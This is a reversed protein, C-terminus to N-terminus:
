DKLLLSPWERMVASLSMHEWQAKDRVSQQEEPSLKHWLQWFQRNEANQKWMELDSQVGM